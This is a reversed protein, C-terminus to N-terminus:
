TAACVTTPLRLSILAQRTKFGAVLGPLCWFLAQRIGLFNIGGMSVGLSSAGHGRKNCHFSVLSCTTSLYKLDENRVNFKSILMFVYSMAM